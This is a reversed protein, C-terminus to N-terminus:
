ESYLEFKSGRETRVAYLAAELRNWEERTGNILYRAIDDRGERPFYRYGRNRYAWASIENENQSYGGTPTRPPAETGSPKWKARRFAEVADSRDERSPILLQGEYLKPYQAM